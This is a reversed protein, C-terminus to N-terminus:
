ILECRPVEKDDGILSTVLDPEEGDEEKKGTDESEDEASIKVSSGHDSSTDKSTKKVVTPIAQIPCPRRAFQIRVSPVTTYTLTYPSPSIAPLPVNSEMLCRALARRWTTTM